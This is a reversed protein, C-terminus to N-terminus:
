ILTLPGWMFACVVSASTRQYLSSPTGGRDDNISLRLISLIFCLCRSSISKDLFRNISRVLECVVSAGTPKTSTIQQM